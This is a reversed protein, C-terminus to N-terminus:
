PMLRVLLKKCSVDPKRAKVFKLLTSCLVQFADKYEISNVLDMIDNNHIRIDAISVDLTIEKSQALELALTEYKPFPEGGKFNSLFEEFKEEIDNLCQM